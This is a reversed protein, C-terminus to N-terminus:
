VQTRNPKAKTPALGFSTDLVRGLGADARVCIVALSPHARMAVQLDALADTVNNGPILDAPYIGSAM